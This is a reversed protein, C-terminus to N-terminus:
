HLHHVYGLGMEDALIGNLHNSHLSALWELGAQQYPRLVGRLLLPPTIRSNPDWDVPVVAYPKLYAPIPPDDGEEDSDGAVAEENVFEHKAQEQSEAHEKAPTADKEDSVPMDVSMDQETVARPASGPGSLKPLPFIIDETHADSQGVEYLMPPGLSSGMEDETGEGFVHPTAVSPSTQRSSSEREPVDNVQDEPSVSADQHDPPDELLEDGLLMNTDFGDDEDDADAAEDQGVDSIAVSEEAMLEDQEEEDQLHVLVEEDDEEEEGSNEGQEEEEDESVAPSHSRSRSAGGRILDGHQTKLIYGSQNLIADLHEHGRRREEEEFRLRENERIHKKYISLAFVM